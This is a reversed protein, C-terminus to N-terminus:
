VARFVRQGSARAYGAWRRVVSARLDGGLRKELHLHPRLRVHPRGRWAAARAGRRVHGSSEAAALRRADGAPDVRGRCVGRDEARAREAACAPAHAPHEGRPGGARRLCEDVGRGGAGAGGPRASALAAAAMCRVAARPNGHLPDRRCLGRQGRHRYIRRFVGQGRRLLDARRSLARVSKEWPAAFRRRCLVAHGGRRACGADMGGSACLAAGSLLEACLACDHAAGRAARRWAM